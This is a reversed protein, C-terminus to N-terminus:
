LKLMQIALSGTATSGGYVLVPFKEKSPQNPMPLQLTQYLGQGITVIGVGLTAADEYSLSQPPKIQLDGKAVLYEGFAGDEANSLNGGHAFGCVRDGAKWEKQVKSGVAVVDGSFDCGIKIGPKDIVFDIHKWDTPNLALAKPKVLIYEDRLAPVPVDIKVSAKHDKDSTIAKMTKPVSNAM